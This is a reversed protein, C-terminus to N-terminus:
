QTKRRPDYPRRTLDKCIASMLPAIINSPVKTQGGPRLGTIRYFLRGTKDRGKTRAHTRLAAKLDDWQWMAVPGRRSEVKYAKAVDNVELCYDGPEFDFEKM